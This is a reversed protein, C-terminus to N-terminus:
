GAINRGRGAWGTAGPNQPFASLRAKSSPSPWTQGLAAAMFSRRQGAAERVDEYGSGGAVGVVVAEAEAEAEM